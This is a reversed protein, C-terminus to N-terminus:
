RGNTPLPQLDDVLNRNRRLKPPSNLTIVLCNNHNKSLCLTILIYNRRAIDMCQGASLRRSYLFYEVSLDNYRSAKVQQEYRHSRALMMIEELHIQKELAQIQQEMQAKMALLKARESASKSGHIESKRYSTVLLLPKFVRFIFHFIFFSEYLYRVANYM